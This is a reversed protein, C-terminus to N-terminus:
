PSQQTRLQELMERPLIVRAGGYVLLPFHKLNGTVIYEADSAVACLIVPDDDSDPSRPVSELSSAHPELQTGHMEILEVLSHIQLPNFGFKVRALVEEYENLIASSYVPSLQGNRVAEILQAPNGSPSLLAAVLVNTDLVVRIM